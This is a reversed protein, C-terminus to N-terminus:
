QLYQAFEAYPKLDEAFDIDNLTELQHTKVTALDNMTSAFVTDGGWEKNYFVEKVLKNMGLLYYGGDQAPGIVADNSHLADFAENIHSARLDFLDSGVILVNDYGDAFAQEFANHMRVGLDEGEQQFKEFIANDWMDDPRVQVSYGVRKTCNLTAVVDKTHSLLKKYIELANEQGVGKALRSKVKGLEPNRTFILLLNNTM